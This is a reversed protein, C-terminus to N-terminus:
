GEGGGVDEAAWWWEEVAETENKSDEGGNGMACGDNEWGFGEM